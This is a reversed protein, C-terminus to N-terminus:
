AICFQELEYKCFQELGRKRFGTMYCLSYRWCFCAQRATGVGTGYNSINLSYSLQLFHMEWLPFFEKLLLPVDSRTKFM